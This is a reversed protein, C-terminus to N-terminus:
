KCAPNTGDRAIEKGVEMKQTNYGISFFNKLNRLIDDLRNEFVRLINKDINRFEMDLM